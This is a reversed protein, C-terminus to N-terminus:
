RVPSPTIAPDADRSPWRLVHGRELQAADDGGFVLGITQGRDVRDVGITDISIMELITLKLDGRAAPTWLRDGVRLPGHSVIGWAVYKGDKVKFMKEVPLVLADPPPPFDIVPLQDAAAKQRRELMDTADRGALAVVAGLAVGIGATAVGFTALSHRAGGPDGHGPDAPGIVLIRRLRTASLVVVSLGAAVGLYAVLRPEVEVDPLSSMLGVRLAGYDLVLGAAISAVVLVIAVRGTLLRVGPRLLLALQALATVAGTLTGVLATGGYWSGFLTDDVGGFLKIRVAPLRLWAAILVIGACGLQLVYNLRAWDRDTPKSESM